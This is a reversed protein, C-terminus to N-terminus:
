GPVANLEPSVPCAPSPAGARGGHVHLGATRGRRGLGGGGFQGRRGLPAPSSHPGLGPAPVAAHGELRAPCSVRCISLLSTPPSLPFSTARKAHESFFFMLCWSGKLCLSVGVPRRPADPLSPCPRPSRLVPPLRERGGREGGGLSQLSDETAATVRSCRVKAEWSVLFPWSDQEWFTLCLRGCGM